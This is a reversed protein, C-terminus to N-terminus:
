GADKKNLIRVYNSLNNWQASFKLVMSIRSTNCIFEISTISFNFWQGGRVIKLTSHQYSQNQPSRISNMLIIFPGRKDNSNCTWGLSQSVVERYRNKLNSKHNTESQLIKTFLNTLISWFRVMIQFSYSLSHGNSEFVCICYLALRTIEECFPNCIGLVDSFHGCFHSKIINVVNM